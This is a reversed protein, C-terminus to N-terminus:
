ICTCTTHRVPIRNWFLTSPRVRNVGHGMKPRMAHVSHWCAPMRGITVFTRHDRLRQRNSMPRVILQASVASGISIGNPAHVRSGHLRNPAPRLLFPFPLPLKPPAGAHAREDVNKSRKNIKSVLCKMLIM